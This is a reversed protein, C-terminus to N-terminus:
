LNTGVPDIDNDKVFDVIQKEAHLADAMFPLRQLEGGEDLYELVAVNSKSGGHKLGDYKNIGLKKRYLLAERALDSFKSFPIKAALSSAGAGRGSFGFIDAVDIFTELTEELLGGRLTVEYGSHLSWRLEYFSRVERM